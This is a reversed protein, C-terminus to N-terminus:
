GIGRAQRSNFRPTREYAGLARKRQFKREHAQLNTNYVFLPYFWNKYLSIEAPTLKDMVPGKEGYYKLKFTPIQLLKPLLIEPFGAHKAARFVAHEIFLQHIFTIRGTYRNEQFIGLGRLGTRGTAIFTNKYEDQSGSKGFFFRNSFVKNNDGSYFQKLLPEEFAARWRDEMRDQVLYSNEQAVSFFIEERVVEYICDTFLVSHSLMWELPDMSFDIKGGITRGFMEDLKNLLEFTLGHKATNPKANTNLFRAAVPFLMVFNATIEIFFTRDVSLQLDVEYEQLCQGVKQRTEMYALKPLEIEILDRDSNGLLQQYEVPRVAWLVSLQSAEEFRSVLDLWASSVREMDDLQVGYTLMDLTDIILIANTNGSDHLKLFEDLSLNDEDRLFESQHSQRILDWLDESNNINSGDGAYNQISCLHVLSNRAAKANTTIAHLQRAIKRLETSKGSSPDGKLVFQKQSSSDLLLVSFQDTFTKMSSFKQQIVPDLAHYPLDYNQNSNQPNELAMPKRPIYNPTEHLDEEAANLVLRALQEFNL